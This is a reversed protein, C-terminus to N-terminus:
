KLDDVTFTGASNGFHNMVYSIVAVASDVSAVQPHMRGKFKVNNVMIVKNSGRQVLEVARKKDSLLYFAKAMRSIVPDASQMTFIKVWLWSIM